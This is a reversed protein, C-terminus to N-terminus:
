RRIGLAKHAERVAFSIMKWERRSREPLRELIREVSPYSGQSHLEAAIEPIRHLLLEHRNATEALVFRRHGEVIRRALASFHVGIYRVTIDLRRCFARLSLVPVEELAATARRELDAKRKAVDAQYRAILQDCLVPEYRRLVATHPYGLRHSLDTLTPVSQEALANQLVWSMRELRDQRLQAIRRTIATCLEPFDERLYKDSPQGLSAAIRHVSTPETSALSRELLEKAQIKNAKHAGPKKWRHRGGSQRYRATVKYCLM